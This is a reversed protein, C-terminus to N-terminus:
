PRSTLPVPHCRCHYAGCTDPRRRLRAWKSAPVNPDGVLKLGELRPGSIPCGPPPPSRAGVVTTQLVEWGHVSYLATWLGQLRRLLPLGPLDSQSVLLPAPPALAVRRFSWDPPERSCLTLGLGASLRRARPSLTASSAGGPEVLPVVSHCGKVALLSLARETRLLSLQGGDASLSLAVVPAGHEGGREVAVLQVGGRECAVRLRLLAPLRLQQGPPGGALPQVALGGGRISVLLLRGRPQQVDNDAAWFLGCPWQGGFRHLLQYLARPGPLRLRAQLEAATAGPPPELAALATKCQQEWVADLAALARTARCAGGM